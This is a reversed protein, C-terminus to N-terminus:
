GKLCSSMFAKREDGKKGEAEKNSAAMKEQQPTKHKPADAAHAGTAALAAACVFTTLLQRM